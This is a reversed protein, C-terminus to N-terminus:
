DEEREIEEFDITDRHEDDIYLDAVIKRRNTSYPSDNIYDFIIDNDNLFQIAEDLEKNKRCTWLCLINGRNQLAQLGEKAFPKINSIELGKGNEVITGDFDVAIIM